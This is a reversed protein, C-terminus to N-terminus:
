GLVNTIFTLFDTYKSNNVLSNAQSALTVMDATSVADADVAIKIAELQTKISALQTKAGILQREAGDIAAIWKYEKYFQPKEAM